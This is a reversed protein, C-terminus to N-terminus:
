VRNGLNLRCFRIFDTSGVNTYGVQRLMTILQGRHYTGHNVVHTIIEEVTSTFKIGEINHYSIQVKPDACSRVFETLQGSSQHLGNVAETFDGHFDKSPWSNFSEGNLRKHWIVQADWLHYVTKRISPFSSEIYQDIIDGAELIYNAILHNAWNNYEAIKLIM